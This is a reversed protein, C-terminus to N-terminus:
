AELIVNPNQTCSDHVGDLIDLFALAKANAPLTTQIMAFCEVAQMDPNRSDMM